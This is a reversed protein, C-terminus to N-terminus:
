IRRTKRFPMISHTFSKGIGSYSTEDVKEAATKKPRSVLKFIAFLSITDMINPSSHFKAKYEEKSRYYIRKNRTTVRFVNMEDFLVDILRRTQGKKGYPIVMSKDLICSIEGKELMVKTKGLLQSRLNFYQEVTIPNGNEDLEQKARANATVPQGNTYGTLYYGLGTADFAFNEIPIGYEKLIKDIWAVLEKPNGRFFRIAIIQSGKWIIFPCDDSELKGGSVDLTGYMEEDEDQPNTFINHIMQRTVNLEEKEVPGFYARKLISRQTGGVAHLNGISQGQTASVLKLNGAAEGTFVTFTKVIQHITVGAAKEQESIHINAREAVEEATRGYIIHEADDGQVYFYVTQGDMEPLLYWDEGLFGADKLMQTTWHEHDPNFSLVMCPLMGSSDRNRSFWYAFMKFSTIETAEDIAIYSAQNKKAYDQFEKWEDPNEVNFNSHILQINSNWQPWSFTPYDSSNYECNAFNGWVEVGDRFISSGKKSDQLRVSIFRGTFGQKDVGTLGKLMMAYTNHTVIYDDTIYLHNPNSVLICRCQKTGAPEISTIERMLPYNQHRSSACARKKRSLSFVESQKPFSVYLRYSTKGVRREGNYTYQPIRSTTACRGGLSWVLERVGEALSKSSTSYEARSNQANGDSDMLGQLLALRDSVSARLYEQPIHKDYSLCNWLGLSKLNEKINEGEITWGYSDSAMKNVTYGDRKVREVVEEDPTYFRAKGNLTRTCGDGLIVGLTYPKIPLSAEGSFSVASPLPLYIGTPEGNRPERDHPIANLIKIIEGTTAVRYQCKKRKFSVRIFWLHEEGAETYGDDDTRIKFVPKDGHEFIQLVEQRGGETDSIVSGVKLEGMTTFGEPTLIKAEYPQMKGSTAEGCIFILNSRCACLKEQLGKQPMFDKKPRLVFDGVKDWGKETVTPDKREVKPYLDPFKAEPNKLTFM